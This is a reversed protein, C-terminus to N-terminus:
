SLLFSLTMHQVREKLQVRKHLTKNYKDGQCNQMACDTKQFAGGQTQRINEGAKSKPEV